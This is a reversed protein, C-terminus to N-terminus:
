EASFSAEERGSRSAGTEPEPKGLGGEEKESEPQSPEAETDDTTESDASPEDTDPRPPLPPLLIRIHAGKRAERLLREDIALRRRYLILQQIRDFAETFSEPTGQVVDEVKYFFVGVATHVPESVEGAKLTALVQPTPQHYHKIEEFDKTQLAGALDPNGEVAEQSWVAALEVFDEGDKLGTKIADIAEQVNLRGERLFIRRFSIELPTTFSDKHTEYYYRAEQPAVWGNLFKQHMTHKFKSVAIRNRIFERTRKKDFGLSTRFYKYLDDVSRPSYGEEKLKKLRAQLGHEVEGESVFPKEEKAELRRVRELILKYDILQELVQHEHQLRHWALLRGSVTVPATTRNYFLEQDLEARTIISDGVEAVIGARPEVQGFITTGCLLAASLTTLSMAFAGRSSDAVAESSASVVEVENM